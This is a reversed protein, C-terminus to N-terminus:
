GKWPSPSFYDDDGIGGGNTTREMTKGDTVGDRSILPRASGGVLTVKAGVTVM